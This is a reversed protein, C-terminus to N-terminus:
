HRPPNRGEARHRSSGDPRPEDGGSAGTRVLRRLPSCPARETCFARPPGTVRGLATSSAGDAAPRLVAADAARPRPGRHRCRARPGPSWPGRQCPTVTIVPRGGAPASSSAPSRAQAAAARASPSSPTTSIWAIVAVGQDGLEVSSERDLARSPSRREAEAQSSRRGSTRRRSRVPGDVVPELVRRYTRRSAGCTSECDRCEYGRSGYDTDKIPNVIEAGAVCAREYHADIEAVYVCTIQTSAGLDLPSMWGQDPRVSGLMIVGPGFSLEAHRLKGDEGAMSFREVFGFARVLWALAASADRYFLAPYLNSTVPSTPTSM